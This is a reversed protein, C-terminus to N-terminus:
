TDRCGQEDQPFLPIMKSLPSGTISTSTSTNYLTFSNRRKTTQNTVFAGESVIVRDRFAQRLEVVQLSKSLDSITMISIDKSDELSFIKAEFMKLLSVLVQEMVKNEYIVEGLFTLQNVIKMLRDIYDKISEGEKM